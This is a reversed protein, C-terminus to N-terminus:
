VRGGGGSRFEGSRLGAGPFIVTKKPPSPHWQGYICLFHCRAYGGVSPSPASLLNFYFTQCGLPNYPHRPKPARTSKM